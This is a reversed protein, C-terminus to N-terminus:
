HMNEVVSNYDGISLDSSSLKLTVHNGLMSNELNANDVMTNTQLISNRIRSNKIRTGDGISVYPGIVSNTIKVNKGIYVPPIIASNEMGATDPNALSDKIYELYRQNTYVTADKNGCDLWEDVQGPVFRVGKNKMNDLANTIQYEGSNMINNDILYQLERKLFAGDKFYYIGIIALDSVYTAPKEVFGTIVQDDDLKVVGFAAPDKVKHVWVIGDQEKDLTFEAKFLTDAYAVIVNGELMDKACYLAHATGLPEDQYYIKGSAGITGAVEKLSNEVEEGFSRNIVFGVEAVPENVVKAIDEVLRHVIPKGAIPILPKPITLTHPRMRKGMGAMPVIIKM